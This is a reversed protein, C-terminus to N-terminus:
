GVVPEKNALEEDLQANGLIFTQFEKAATIITSTKPMIDCKMAIRTAQELAFARLEVMSEIKYDKNM